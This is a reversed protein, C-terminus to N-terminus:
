HTRGLLRVASHAAVPPLAAVTSLLCPIPPHPFRAFSFNFGLFALVFDVGKALTVTMQSSGLLVMTQALTGVRQYQGPPHVLSLSCASLYLLYRDNFLFYVTAAKGWIGSWSGDHTRIKSLTVIGEAVPVVSMLVTPQQEVTHEERLIRCYVHCADTKM